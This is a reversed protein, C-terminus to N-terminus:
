KYTKIRQPAENHLNIVYQEYSDTDAQLLSELNCEIGLYIRIKEWHARYEMKAKYLEYKIREERNM